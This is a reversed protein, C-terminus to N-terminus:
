VEVNFVVGKELENFWIRGKHLRMIQRSLSLGVGSGKEKTTFFPIFVQEKLEEPIGGGNDQVQVITRNEATRFASLQIKADLQGDVAQMANKLLNILVQELLQPDAMMLMEYPPVDMEFQINRQQFESKFLTALRQLLDGVVVKEFKPKPQKYISRYANVFRLLGKSRNEITYLGQRIDEIDEPHIEELSKQRGSEDEILTNILETLSIIPTVSNMIEHTTVRILKQWAELEKEDLEPRINQLSILKFYEDQLKFETAEISLNLLEERIVLKVLEREGSKLKQLTYLLDADVHQLAQINKLYPKHLMRQAANNMLQIEGSENFCILAIGVHEVVNQLYQHNSEKEARLNQFENTIINFAEKLEDHSASLNTLTFTNAFDRYKIALLFNKLDRNTREVYYILEAILAAVVLGMVVNTILWETQTLGYVMGFALLSIIIVRIIVNISFRRYVM